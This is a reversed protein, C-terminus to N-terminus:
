VWSICNFRVQLAYYEMVVKLYIVEKTVAVGMNNGWKKAVYRDGIVM